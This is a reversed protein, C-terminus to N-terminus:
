YNRQDKQDALKDMLILPAIVITGVMVSAHIMMIAMIDAMDLCLRKTRM